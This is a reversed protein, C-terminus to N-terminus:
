DADGDVSRTVADASQLGAGFPEVPADKVVPEAADAEANVRKFRLPLANIEQLLQHDHPISPASLRNPYFRNKGSSYQGQPFDMEDFMSYVVTSFSDWVGEQIPLGAAAFTKLREDNPGPEFSRPELPTNEVSGITAGDRDLPVYRDGKRREFPAGEANLARRAIEPPIYVKRLIADFPVPAAVGNWGRRM